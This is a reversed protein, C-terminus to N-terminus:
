SAEHAPRLTVGLRRRALLALIAASVLMGGFGFTTAPGWLEAVATLGMISILQGTHMAVWRFAFVRGLLRPELARQYTTAAGVVIAVNLVGLIFIAAVGAYPSAVRVLVVFLVAVPGVLVGALFIARLTNRERMRRVITMSGVLWGAGLASAYLGVLATPIGSDGAGYMTLLPMSAGFCLFTAVEAAFAARVTLLQWLAQAGEAIEAALSRRAPAAAPRFSGALSVGLLAAAAYCCASLTLLTPFGLLGALATGAAPGLALLLGNTAETLANASALRSEDLLQPMLAKVVATFTVYCVRLVVLGVFVIWVDRASHVTVLMMLVAACSLAFAGVLMRKRDTRDAVVGAFPAVVLAPLLEAVYAGGLALTSGTLEHVWLPLAVFQMWVSALALSNAIWLRAFGPCTLLPKTRPHEPHVTTV